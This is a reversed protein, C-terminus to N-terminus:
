CVPMLLILVPMMIDTAAVAGGCSVAESFLKIALSTRRREESYSVALTMAQKTMM